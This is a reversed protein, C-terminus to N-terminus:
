LRGMPPNADDTDFRTPILRARPTCSTSPGRDFRLTSPRQDADRTTVSPLPNLWVQNPTLEKEAAEASKKSAQAPGKAAAKEKKAAERERTKQRKKLETKSVMEGTVDDLQLNAVQETPPAPDAM